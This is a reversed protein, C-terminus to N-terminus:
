GALHLSVFFVVGGNETKVAASLFTSAASPLSPCVIVFINKQNYVPTM